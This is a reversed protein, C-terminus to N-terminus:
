GNLDLLLAPHTSVMFRWQFGHDAWGRGPSACRRVASLAIKSGAACL